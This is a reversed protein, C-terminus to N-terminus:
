LSFFSWVHTETGVCLISISSWAHLNSQSCLRCVVMHVDRSKAWAEMVPNGGGALRRVLRSQVGVPWHTEKPLLYITKPTREIMAQMSHM